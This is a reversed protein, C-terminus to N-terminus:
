SLTGTLTWLAPPLPPIPMSSIHMKCLNNPNIGSLKSASYKQLLTRIEATHGARSKEALVARVQELSLQPEAPAVPRETSLLNALTTAVEDITAAATRLDKIAVNLKSFKGM